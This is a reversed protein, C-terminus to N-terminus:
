NVTVTGIMGMAEHPTCVYQYQGAVTFTHTYSKGGMVMGSDFPEVGSPLIVDAKKMAKSPDFTVTHPQVGTNKWEITTGKAISIAAPDFKFQDTLSVVVTTAAPAAATTPIATPLAPAPTPVVTPVAIATAPVPTALPAVNSPQVAAPAVTAPGSAPAAGGACSVIAGGLAALALAGIVTRRSVRTPSSGFLSVNTM